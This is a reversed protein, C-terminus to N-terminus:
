RIVSKARLTGLDFCYRPFRGKAFFYFDNDLLKVSVFPAVCNLVLAIDEYRLPWINSKKSRELLIYDYIPEDTPLYGGLHYLNLNPRLLQPTVGGSSVVNIVNAGKNYVDDFVNLLKRTAARAEPSIQCKSSHDFILLSIVKKHISISSGVFLGVVILPWYIRWRPQKVPGLTLGLTLAHALARPFGNIILMMLLASVVPVSYHFAYQGSLFRILLLPLLFFVVAIDQQYDQQSRMGARMRALVLWGLPIIFPYYISFAGWNFMSLANAVTSFPSFFLGSLLGSGYKETPGLWWPRLVFDFVIWLLSIILLSISFWWGYVGRVQVQGRGHRAAAGAAMGCYYLALTFITFPFEERFACLFFATSLILLPRKKYISFVLIAVPLMSWTTTHIPFTIGLLLGKCFIILLLLLLYEVWKTTANANSNANVWFYFIITLLFCGFEIYICASVLQAGLKEALALVMAGLWIIPDFHDNLIFVGRVSVFPNM